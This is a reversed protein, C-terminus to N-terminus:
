CEREKPMDSFDTGLVFETLNERRSEEILNIIKTKVNIHINSKYISTYNKQYQINFLGDNSLQIEESCKHLETSWIHVSTNRFETKNWEDAHKDKCLYLQIQIM